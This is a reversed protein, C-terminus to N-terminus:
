IFVPFYLTRSRAFTMKVVLVCLCFLRFSFLGAKGNITIHRQIDSSLLGERMRIMIVQIRSGLRANGIEFGTSISSQQANAYKLYKVWHTIGLITNKLANWYWIRYLLPIMLLQILQYLVPTHVTTQKRIGLTYSKWLVVGFRCSWRLCFLTGWKNLAINVSEPSRCCFKRKHERQRGTYKM